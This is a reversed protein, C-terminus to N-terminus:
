FNLVNVIAVGLLTPMALQWSEGRYCFDCSLSSSVFIALALLAGGIFLWSTLKDHEPNGFPDNAKFKNKYYGM